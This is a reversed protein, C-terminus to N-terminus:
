PLPAVGVGTIDTLWKENPATASFDRNLLNAPAPRIEGLYSGYCRRKPVVAVLSEQKM